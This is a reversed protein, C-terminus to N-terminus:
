VISRKGYIETDTEAKELIEVSTGKPLKIDAGNKDTLKANYTSPGTRVFSNDTSMKGKQNVSDTMYAKATTTEPMEEFVPISFVYTNDLIGSKAYSTYTSYGQALAGVLNTMYQHTYLKHYADPNVNFRQLYGTFQGNKIYTEALFEAGGNISKM